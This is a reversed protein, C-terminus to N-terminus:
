LRHWKYRTAGSVFSDYKTEIWIIILHIVKVDGRLTQASENVYYGLARAADLKIKPAWMGARKNLVNSVTGHSLKERLIMWTAM